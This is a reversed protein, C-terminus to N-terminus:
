VTPPNVSPAESVPASKAPIEHSEFFKEIDAVYHERGITRVVDKLIDDLGVEAEAEVPAEAKAILSDLISQEASTLAM